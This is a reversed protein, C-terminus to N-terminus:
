VDVHTLKRGAEHFLRCLVARRWQLVALALAAFYDAPVHRRDLLRLIDNKVAKAPYAPQKGPEQHFLRAATM